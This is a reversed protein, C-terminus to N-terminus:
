RTKSQKDDLYGWELRAFGTKSPSVRTKSQKDDLELHPFHIGENLVRTKSLLLLRQKQTLM